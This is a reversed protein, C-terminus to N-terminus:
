FGPSGEFLAYMDDYVQNVIGLYENIIQALKEVNCFHEYM